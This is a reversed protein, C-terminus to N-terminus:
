VLRSPQNEWGERVRLLLSLVKLIPYNLKKFQINKIWAMKTNSNKIKIKNLRSTLFKRRLHSLRDILLIGDLHDYEHQFIRAKIGNFEEEITNSNIDSYRIKIKDPRLVDEYIGPISLCGERFYVEEPSQWLIEPNMFFKQYKEFGKDDETMTSTDIVFARKLIGVQPAALGIGGNKKLTEFLNGSIQIPNDEKTVANSHMRLIHSGYKVIPVLM